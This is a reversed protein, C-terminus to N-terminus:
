RCGSFGTQIGIASRVPSPLNNYTSCSKSITRKFQESITRGNRETIYIDLKHVYQAIEPNIKIEKFDLTHYPCKDWTGCATKIDFPESVFLANGKRDVGVVNVTGRVGQTRKTSINEGHIMLSGNRYLNVNARTYGGGVRQQLSNTLTGTEPQDFQNQPQPQKNQALKDHEPCNLTQTYTRDGPSSTEVKRMGYNKGNIATFTDKGGWTLKSGDTSEAYYYFLRNHTDTGELHTQGRGAQFNYWSRTEWQGSLNMFRVAIRIPASSCGNVFSIRLPAIPVAYQALLQINSDDNKTQSHANPINLVLSSAVLPIAFLPLFYNNKIM